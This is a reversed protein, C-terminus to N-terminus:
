VAASPRAMPRRLSGFRTCPRSSKPPSTSKLASRQTIHVRQTRKMRSTACSSRSATTCRPWLFTMSVKKSSPRSPLMQASLM